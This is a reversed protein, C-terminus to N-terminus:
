SEKKDKKLLSLEALANRLLMENNHLRAMLENFLESVNVANLKLESPELIEISSPMYDFCFGVVSELIDFEIELEAFSSYLPKDELQMAEFIKESNFKLNKNKKMNDILLKMTNEVHEKPSGLVENIIKTKIM